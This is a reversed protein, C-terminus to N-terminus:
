PQAAATKTPAAFGEAGQVKMKRKYLKDGCTAFLTDFKEGGFCISTVHGTPLPLTGNAAGGQACIQVGLRTAVYLRGDRDVCMGAGGAGEGVDPSRLHFYQVKKALSGDAQIQYSYVWPSAGDAVYLISQDPSLAIGAGSGFEKDEEKRRRTTNYRWVIGNTGTLYMSGDSRVAIARCASADFAYLESTAGDSYALLRGLITVAYLKGDPGFAQGTNNESDALFPVVKGDLGITLTKHAPPDNFFVEGKANSALGVVEQYGEGAVKWGEDPLLIEQL